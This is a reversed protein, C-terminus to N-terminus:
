MVPFYIRTIWKNTDPESRRDTVLSEFPIAPAIRDFDEVYHRIQGFAKQIAHNGGKVETVLINGGGLMWRYHIKGSDPLKKDVPIAVKLLYNVSDNTFVNLMPHNTETANHMRIYNRLQDVLSYIKDISPPGKLEESIFMLTSDLVSKKQIDYGYLNQITSYKRAIAELIEDFSRALKNADRYRAIRKLPNNSTPIVTGMQLHTSDAHIPILTLDTKVAMDDLNISLPVSTFQLPGPKFSISNSIYSPEGRTEGANGPWWENWSNTVGIKRYLADKNAAFVLSKNIVIHNPILFYVLAIAILVLLVAVFLIRKM